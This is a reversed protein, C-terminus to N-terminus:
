SGFNPRSRVEQRSEHACGFDGTFTEAVKVIISTMTLCNNVSLRYIGVPTYGLRSFRPLSQRNGAYGAPLLLDLAIGIVWPTYLALFEATNAFELVRLSGRLM